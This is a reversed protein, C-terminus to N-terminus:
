VTYYSFYLRIEIYRSSLVDSYQALFSFGSVNPRGCELQPFFSSTESSSQREYAM